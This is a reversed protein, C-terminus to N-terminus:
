PASATSGSARSTSATSPWPAPGSRWPWGPGGSCAGSRSVLPGGPAGAPRPGDGASLPRTTVAPAPLRRHLPRRVAGLPLAGAVAGSPGPLPLPGRPHLRPPLHLPAPHDPRRRRRTPPQRPDLWVETGLDIRKWLPFLYAMYLRYLPNVTSIEHVLVLGGPRVARAMEALAADQDARDGAHHLVNVALAADFAGNQFPLALVSAALLGTGAPATERAAAIQGPALDVGVVRYGAGALADVYWGRGAAPTWCAPGRSRDGGGTPRAPHPGGQAGGGAGAGRPSLEEAYAAGLADFHGPEAEPGTGAARGPATGADPQRRRRRPAVPALLRRRGPGGDAVRHAPAGPRGGPRGRAPHGRLRGPAGADGDGRRGRRRAPPDARGPAHRRRLHGGGPGAVRELSSAGASPTSPSAAVSGPWAPLAAPGGGGLASARPGAGAGQRRRRAGRAAVGLPASRAVGTLGALTLALGGGASARWSCPGGPRRPGPGPRGPPARLGGGGRRSAM